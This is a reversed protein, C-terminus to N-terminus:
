WCCTDLLPRTEVISRVEDSLSSLIQESHYADRFFRRDTWTRLWLAGRRLLFVAAFLLGFTTLQNALSLHHKNAFTIGVTLILATLLIQLIRIRSTALAYQLGQRVVVRVDLARHVVIVYALTTPFLLIFVLSGLVLWEPFVNELEGGKLRAILILLFAPTMAITTGTYLLRLRRKADLSTATGSKFAISGFFSGIALLSLVFPASGLKDWFTVLRSVAAYSEMEGIRIVLSVIADILLLPTLVNKALRVWAEARNPPFPEPFYLGFFMMCLPWAVNWSTRYFDAMDRVWPGWSETGATFLNSLGLLVGILLWASIDRPRVFAVWFALPISFTPLVAKIMIVALVTWDITNQPSALIIKATRETRSGPTQVIVDLAEGPKRKAIEEGYVAQSTSLRGNVAILIDGDRIGASKAESGVFQLTLVGQSYGPYFPWKAAERQLFGPFWAITARVQYTCAALFLMGLVLYQALPPKKKSM